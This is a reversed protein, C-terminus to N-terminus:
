RSQLTLLVAALALVGVSALRIGSLANERPARSEGPASRSVLDFALVVLAGVAPFYVPNM